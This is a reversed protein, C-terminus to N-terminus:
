VVVQYVACELTWCNYCFFSSNYHNVNEVFHIFISRYMKMPHMLAINGPNVAYPIDCLIRYWGPPFEPLSFLVFCFLPFHLSTFKFYLLTFKFYLLTFYLLTFYLLTFYLLTFYLLIFYLLTFYLLTFYLLTFYLLTFYLLIFCLLNLTFYLLTFYLLTFYLLTFYLIKHQICLTEEIQIFRFNHFKISYLQIAIVTM